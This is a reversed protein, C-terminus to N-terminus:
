ASQAVQGLKARVLETDPHRLESMIVLAQRWASAAASLDSLEAYSDGLHMLTMSSHYRDGALMDLGRRFCSVAQRYQGLRHYAYGRSDWTGAEGHQDGLQRHLALARECCDIAERHQGLRSHCWGLTNLAHAQGRRDGVTRYGSLAHSVHTVAEAHRGQQDLARAISLHITAQALRNGLQQELNLALTLHRYADDYHGALACRVGISRHARAIGAPVAARQAAALAIHQVDDWDQWYGQRQLFMGTLWTLMEAHQDLGSDAALGIVATLVRWEAELWALAQEPSSFREARVGRPPRPLTIPDRPAYLLRAAEHVSRLYYDLVRGVGAARDAESDYEASQEAAFTRLLDHFSYRGPAHQQLAQAHCLEGLARSGDRPTIGALSAAAAASIDPGPHLSLLRFMRAAQGTMGDCSWSLVARVSALQDDGTLGDLLGGASGLESVLASLGGGASAVRAAAISLALPLRGCLGILELRDAPEADLWDQGLRGALLQASEEESLPGVTLLRAGETAVLGVFDSRGTVLVMSDRSGPLLPRVQGSDRANDLLILMRRDSLLSRYLATREDLSHPMRSRPVALASLLAAVADAPTLTPLAPDYGRLNLYIQGDPFRGTVRHAWHVALATKGVGGCGGVATVVSLGAAEDLSATMATLEAARGAFQRVDFPLQRPRPPGNQGARWAPTQRAPVQRAPVHRAPVQGTGDAQRGAGSPRSADPPAGYALGPGGSPVRTAAVAAARQGAGAAAVTGAARRSATGDATGAAEDPRSLPRRATPVMVVPHRAGRALQGSGAWLKKDSALIRRQLEQLEPGPEVGLERVLMQRADQYAALAEAQRGCRYLALMLQARFRERLPHAEALSRLPVVLEGHQSLQLGAETQWELAQLRLQELRPLHQGRLLESPVDDLPASRWLRLAHDLEQQASEWQGTRVAAGGAECRRVFCPLDLESEDLEILYGPDCTRIRGALEPGFAQRLRKIYNRLTVRAAPPPSGDWVFGALDDFSVARNAHVLLAALVTRQKAAAVPILNGELRVQLPGLIGLWM